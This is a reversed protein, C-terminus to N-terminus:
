FHEEAAIAAPEKEVAPPTGPPRGGNDGGRRPSGRRLSQNLYEALAYLYPRYAESGTLRRDADAWGKAV